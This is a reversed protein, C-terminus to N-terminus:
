KIPCIEGADVLIVDDGMKRIKCWPIIINKASSFLRMPSCSGPVVIAELRCSNVEIIIDCVCGLRRGDCVNIVEKRKLESFTM